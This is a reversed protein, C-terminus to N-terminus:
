NNIKEKNHNIDKESESEEEPTSESENFDESRPESALSKKKIIDGSSNMNNSLKRSARKMNKHSDHHRKIDLKEDINKLQFINGEVSKRRKQFVENNKIKGEIYKKVVSSAKKLTKTNNSIRDKKHRKKNDNKISSGKLINNNEKIKM